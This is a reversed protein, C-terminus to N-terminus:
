NGGGCGCPAAKPAAGGCCATPAEQTPAAAATPAGGCCPKEAGAEQVPLAQAAAACCPENAQPAPNAATAEPTGAAPAGESLAKVPEAAPASTVGAAVGEAVPAQGSVASQPAAAPADTQQGLWGYRNALAAAVLGVAGLITVMFILTRVSKGRGGPTPSCCCAGNSCCDVQGADRKETDM